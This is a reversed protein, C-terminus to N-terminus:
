KEDSNPFCIDTFFKDKINLIDIDLDSFSSLSSIDFSSNQKISYYVQIEENNCISLNLLTKNDDYAQYEVQNVLSKDNKNMIEVQLFTIIRPENIHYTSRLLKECTSFDVHTSNSNLFSKTPRISMIFDQGTMEYNKGIEISNIIKPIEENLQNKEINLEINEGDYKNNDDTKEETISNTNETETINNIIKQTKTEIDIIQSTAENKINTSEIIDTTKDLINTEIDSKGKQEETNYIETGIDMKAETKLTNSYKRDTEYEYTANTKDTEVDSSYVTESFKNETYYKEKPSSEDIFNYTICFSKNRYLCLHCNADTCNDSLSENFYINYYTLRGYYKEKKFNEDSGEDDGEKKMPYADYTNLDPETLVAIYEINCNFSSYKNDNFKLKILEGKSLSTNSEIINNFSSILQPNFCNSINQILISDLIM